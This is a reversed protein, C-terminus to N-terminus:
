GESIIPSVEVWVELIPRLIIELSQVELFISLIKMKKFNKNQFDM